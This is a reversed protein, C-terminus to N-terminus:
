GITKRGKGGSKQASEEDVVNLYSGRGMRHTYKARLADQEKERLFRKITFDNIEELEPYDNEKMFECFLVGIREDKLKEVDSKKKALRSLLAKQYFVSKLKDDIKGFGPELYRPPKDLSTTQHKFSKPDYDEGLVCRKMRELILRDKVGLQPIHDKLKSMGDVLYEKQKKPDSQAVGLKLKVRRVKFDVYKLKREFNFKLSKESEQVGALAQFNKKKIKEFRKAFYRNVKLLALDLDMSHKQSLKLYFPILAKSNGVKFRSFYNKGLCKKLIEQAVPDKQDAMMELLTMGDQETKPPKRARRAGNQAEEFAEQVEKDIKSIMSETVQDTSLGIKELKEHEEAEFSESIIDKFDSKVLREKLFEVTSRGSKNWKKATKSGFFNVGSDGVGLGEWDPLMKASDEVLFDENEDVEDSKLNPAPNYGLEFDAEIDGFERGENDDDQDAHMMPVNNFNKNYNSGEVITFDEESQDDSQFAPAPKSFMDEWTREKSDKKSPESTQPKQFKEKHRKKSTSKLKSSQHSGPQQKKHENEEEPDIKQNIKTSKKPGLKMKLAQKQPTQFTISLGAPESDQGKVDGDGESGATSATQLVLGGLNAKKCEDVKGENQVLRHLDIEDCANRACMGDEEAGEEGVLSSLSAKKGSKRFGEFGFRLPGLRPLVPALMENFDGPVTPCDVMDEDEAEGLFVEGYDGRFLVIAYQLEALEAYEIPTQDGEMLFTDAWNKVEDDSKPGFKSIYCERMLLWLLSFLLTENGDVIDRGGIGTIPLMLENECLRVLYNCNALMKFKNVTKFEVKDWDVTGPKIREIIYLLTIGDKLSKELNFIEDVGDLEESNLWNLYRTREIELDGDNKFM